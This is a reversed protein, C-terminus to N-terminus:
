FELKLSDKFKQILTTKLWLACEGTIMSGQPDTIEFPSECVITYGYGDLIQDDTLSTKVEYEDVSEMIEEIKDLAFMEALENSLPSNFKCGTEKNSIELTDNVYSTNWGHQNLFAIQQETLKM